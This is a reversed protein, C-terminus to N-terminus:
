RGDFTTTVGAETEIPTFELHNEEEGESIVGVWVCMALCYCLASIFLAAVLHFEGEPIMTLLFWLGLVWFVLILFGSGVNLIVKRECHEKNHLCM